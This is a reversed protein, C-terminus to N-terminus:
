APLEGVPELFTAEPPGLAGGARMTAQVQPDARFADFAARDWDFLLVAAGADEADRFAQVGRSGHSRRMKAGASTFQSWFQDWDDFRVRVLIM